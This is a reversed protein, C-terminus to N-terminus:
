RLRALDIRFVIPFFTAWGAWRMAGAESVTWIHGDGDFSLDEVGDPLRYRATVAGRAPDIRVLEGLNAGSITIWLQGGPDFAAGQAKQPLEISHSADEARLRMVGDGIQGLAVRYIRGPKDREYTGLWIADGAGAAFSGKLPPELRVERLVRGIAADEPPGLAIEHMIHTDTVWLRGPRSRALGGAHGCSPPLSLMGTARGAAPDIRWLRCAGRGRSAETSHYGSVYIAGDIVSIGQPVYGDDLGPAWIRATIAEANPLPGGPLTGPLRSSYSPAVGLM